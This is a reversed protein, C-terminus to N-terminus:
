FKEIRQLSKTDGGPVHFKKSIIWFSILIKEFRGCGNCKRHSVLYPIRPNDKFMFALGACLSHSM